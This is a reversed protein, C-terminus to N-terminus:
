TVGILYNLLSKLSLHQKAIVGRMMRLTLGSEVKSIAELIIEATINLKNELPHIKFEKRLEKYIIERQDPTCPSLLKLIEEVQKDM